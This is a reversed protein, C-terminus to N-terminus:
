RLTILLNSEFCLSSPSLGHECYKISRPGIARLSNHELIILQGGQLDRAITFVHFYNNLSLNRKDRKLM